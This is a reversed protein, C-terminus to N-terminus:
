ILTLPAGKKVGVKRGYTKRKHKAEATRGNTGAEAAALEELECAARLAFTGGMCFGTIGVQDVAYSHDIEAIACSITDMADESALNHMLESAEDANKAVKGRFLDPAVCLYDERAYRLAIDKIHDNIGWWEHILVIASESEADPRAVVATTDGKATDINMTEFKM